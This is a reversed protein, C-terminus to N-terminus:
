GGAGDGAVGEARVVKPSCFEDQAIGDPLTIERQAAFVRVVM